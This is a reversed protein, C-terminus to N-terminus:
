TSTGCKYAHANEFHQCNSNRGMLMGFGYESSRQQLIIQAYKACLCDEVSIPLGNLTDSRVTLRYM